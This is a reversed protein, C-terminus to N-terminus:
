VYLCWLCCLCFLQLLTDGLSMTQRLFIHIAVRFLPYLSINNYYYYYYYYYYYQLIVIELQVPVAAYNHVFCYRRVSRVYSEHIFFVFFVKKISLQGSYM